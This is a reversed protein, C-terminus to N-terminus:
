HVEGEYKTVRITHLDPEEPYPLEACNKGYPMFVTRLDLHDFLVHISIPWYLDQAFKQSLGKGMRGLMGPMECWVM